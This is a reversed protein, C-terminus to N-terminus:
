NLEELVLNSLSITNGAAATGWEATLTVAQSATTDITSTGTNDCGTRLGSNHVEEYKGQSFVTGSGGTTRVTLMNSIEFTDNSSNGSSGTMTCITTSGLKVRITITPNGTSSHYGM